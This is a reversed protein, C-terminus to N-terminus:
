KKVEKEVLVKEWSEEKSLDKTLIVLDGEGKYPIWIAGNRDVQCQYLHMIRYELTNPEKECSYCSVISDPKLEKMPDVLVRANINRSGELKEKFDIYTIERSCRVGLKGLALLLDAPLGDQKEISVMVNYTSLETNNRFFLAYQEIGEENSLHFIVKKKVSDIVKPLIINSIEVLQNHLFCEPLNIYLDLVDVDTREMYLVLPRKPLFFSVSLPVNDSVKEKIKAIDGNSIFLQIRATVIGTQGEEMVVSAEPTVIAKQTLIRGTDDRVKYVQVRQEQNSDKASVSIYADGKIRTGFLCFFICLFFLVIMKGKHLKLFM